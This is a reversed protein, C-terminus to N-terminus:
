PVTSTLPWITASPTCAICSMISTNFRLLPVFDRLAMGIGQGIITAERIGTDFVRTAGFLEQLGEAGQNVDGIKGVDEGFLVVKDNKEFLAKFNDRIIIRGDVKEVEDPYTPPVPTINKLQYNSESYLHSSM